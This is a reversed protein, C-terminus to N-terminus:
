SENDIVLRYKQARKEKNDESISKLFRGLTKIEESKSSINEFSEDFSFSTMLPVQLDAVLEVTEIWNKRKTEEQHLDHSDSYLLLKLIFLGM